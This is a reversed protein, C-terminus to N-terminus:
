RAPLGATDRLREIVVHLHPSRGAAQVALRDLYSELVEVAQAQHEPHEPNALTAVIDATQSRSYGGSTTLSHASAYRLLDIACDVCISSRYNRAARNYAGGAKRNIPYTRRRRKCDSCTSSM